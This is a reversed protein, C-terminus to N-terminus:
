AKKDAAEKLALNGSSTQQSEMFARVHLPRLIDIAILYKESNLRSRESHLAEERKNILMLGEKSCKRGKGEKVLVFVVDDPPLPLSSSFM